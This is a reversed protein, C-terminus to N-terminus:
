KGYHQLLAVDSLKPSLVSNGSPFEGCVSFLIRSYLLPAFALRNTPTLLEALAHFRSRNGEVLVVVLFQFQRSGPECAQAYDVHSLAFALKSTMFIAVFLLLDNALLSQCSSNGNSTSEAGTSMWDFLWAVQFPLLSPEAVPLGHSRPIEVYM